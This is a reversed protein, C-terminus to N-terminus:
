IQNKRLLHRYPRKFNYRITNYEIGCNPCSFVDLIKEIMKKGCKYCFYEGRELHGLKKDVAIKLNEHIFGGTLILNNLRRNLMDHSCCSGCSNCIFLGNECKRTDRSDIINNCKGNLCHNLYVIDKNFCDENACKFRVITYSAFNSTELPYLIQDCDKCYLKELLRNFRNVLSIFQYYNGKPIFEGRNNREDTDLGLIECFDLLTYKEWEQASHLTECKGFCPERMCWWFEKKFLNDPKNALRGECFQLGNPINPYEINRYTLKQKITRKFEALHTNNEYIGGEFDLYFRYKKAFKLVDDGYRSPIGWHKEEKNWKRKPLLKVAEKLEEFHSNYTHEVDEVSITIAYYFQNEGFPVKAITGNRKLNFEASLRGLCKEFYRGIKFRRTKDLKLDELVINLLESEVLFHKKKKYSSLAQIIVDTSVDVSIEPNVDLNCQYLDLDFRNLENLREITLDFKGTVKLFFLKRIIRVQEDPTFYIFKGKLLEFDFNDEEDLFWLVLNYLDNQFLKIKEIHISSIQLLYKIHNFQKYFERRDTIPPQQQLYSFLLEAIEEKSIAENKIWKEIQGYQEFDDTLLSEIYDKPFVRGKSSKWIKFYEAQELSEFVNKDFLSFEEESLFDYGLEYIWHFDSISENIIKRELVEKIIKNKEPFTKFIKLCKEKNLTYINQFIIDETINRIYGKLFLEYKQENNCEVEVYAVFLEVLNKNKKGKWFNADFLVQSISFYNCSDDKIVLQEILSFTREFGNDVSYIKLLELQKDVSIKSLTLVKNIDDTNKDTFFKTILEMSVEKVVGKLWLEPLFIDSSKSIIIENLKTKIVNKHNDDLELPILNLLKIHRNFEDNSKIAELKNAQTIIDNTIQNSYVNDLKFKLKEQENKDAFELFKYLIKLEESTLNSIYQFKLKIFRSCFSSGFSFNKIRNLESLGIESINSNFVKEQIEKDALEPSSIFDFRQNKWVQFLMEDNLNHCFYSFIENLIEASFKRNEIFNCYAVFEKKDLHNDFYDTITKTIDSADKQRFISSASLEVLNFTYIEKNRFPNGRYGRGKVEVQIYVKDSKGLYYLLTKWDELEGVLRCNNATNRNRDKRPYFIIPTGQSIEKQIGSFNNRHLFYEGDDPTGIVGFGKDSDFWKVLGIRKEKPETPINSQRNM